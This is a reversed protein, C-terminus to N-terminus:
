SDNSISTLIQGAELHIPFLINMHRGYMAFYISAYKIHKPLFSSFKRLQIDGLIELYSGPTGKLIFIM